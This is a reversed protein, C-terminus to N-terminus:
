CTHRLLHGLYQIKMCASQIKLHANYCVSIRQVQFFMTLTDSPSIPVVVPQQESTSAEEQGSTVAEQELQEPIQTEEEVAKVVELKSTKSRQGKLAVLKLISTPVAGSHSHLSRFALSPSPSPIRPAFSISHLCSFASITAM